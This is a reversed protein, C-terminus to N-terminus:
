CNSKLLYRTRDWSNCRENQSNDNKDLTKFNHRSIIKKVFNIKIEFQKHNSFLNSFLLLMIIDFHSSILLNRM